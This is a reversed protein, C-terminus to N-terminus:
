FDPSILYFKQLLHDHFAAIGHSWLIDVFTRNVLNTEFNDSWMSFKKTIKKTLKRPILTKPVKLCNPDTKETEIRKQGVFLNSGLSSSELSGIEVRSKRRPTLSGVYIHELLSSM